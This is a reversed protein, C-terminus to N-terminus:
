AHLKVTLHNNPVFILRNQVFKEVKLGRLANTGAGIKRYKHNIKEAGPHELYFIQIKLVPCKFGKNLQTKKLVAPKAARRSRFKELKGKVPFAM